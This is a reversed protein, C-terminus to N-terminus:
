SDPPTKQRIVRRYQIARVGPNGTNQQIQYTATVGPERKIETGQWLSPQALNRVIAQIREDAYLDRVAALTEQREGETLKNGYRNSGVIVSVYYLAYYVGMPQTSLMESLVDCTREWGVKPATYRLLWKVSSPDVQALRDRLFVEAHEPKFVCQDVFQLAKNPSVEYMKWLLAFRKDDSLARLARCLTEARITIREGHAVKLLNDLLTEEDLKARGHYIASVM